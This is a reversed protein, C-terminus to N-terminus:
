QIHVSLTWHPRGIDARRSCPPSSYTVRCYHGVTIRGTFVGDYPHISPELPFQSVYGPLVAFHLRKERKDLFELKKDRVMSMIVSEMSNQNKSASHNEVLRANLEQVIPSFFQTVLMQRKIITDFEHWVSVACSPDYGSCAMMIMGVHDAEFRYYIM